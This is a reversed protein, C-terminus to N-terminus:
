FHESETNSEESWWYGYVWEVLIEPPMVFFKRYKLLSHDGGIEYPGEDALSNFFEQNSV